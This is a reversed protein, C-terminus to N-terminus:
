NWFDSEFLNLYRKVDLSLTMREQEGPKHKHQVFHTVQKLTDDFATAQALDSLKIQKLTSIQYIQNLFHSEKVKDFDEQLEIMPQGDDEIDTRRSLADANQHKTGARHQIVFDFGALFTFWRQYIGRYEKMTSLWKLCHADTRLIFPKSLLMHEFKKM